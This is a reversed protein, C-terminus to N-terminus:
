DARDEPPKGSPPNDRQSRVWGTQRATMFGLYLPLKRLVYVPIGLLERFPVIRRGFRLWALLVALVLLLLAVAPIWLVTDPVGPILTLLASGALSGLSLM